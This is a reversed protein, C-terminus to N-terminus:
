INPITIINSEVTNGEADHICMQYTFGPMMNDWSRYIRYPLGDNTTDSYEEKGNLLQVETDYANYVDIMASYLGGSPGSVNIISISTTNVLDISQHNSIIGNSDKVRMSYRQGAVWDVGDIQNPPTIFMGSTPFGTIAPSVDTWVNNIWGQITYTGSCNKPEVKFRLYTLASDRVFTFKIHSM